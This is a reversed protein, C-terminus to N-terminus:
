SEIWLFKRRIREVFFKVTPDNDLLGETDLARLASELLSESRDGSFIQALLDDAEFVSIARTPAIVLGVGLAILGEGITIEGPNTSPGTNCALMLVTPANASIAERASELQKIDVELLGNESPFYLRQGDSHAVVIIVNDKKSLAKRMENYINKGPTTKANEKLVSQINKTPGEWSSSYSGSLDAGRNLQDHEDASKPLGLFYTTRSKKLKKAEALKIRAAVEHTSRGSIASRIVPVRSMSEIPIGDLGTGEVVVIDRSNVTHRTLSQLARKQSDMMNIPDKGLIRWLRNWFTDAIKIETGEGSSAQFIAKGNLSMSYLAVGNSAALGSGIQDTRIIDAVKEVLGFGRTDIVSLVISDTPEAALTQSILIAEYGVAENITREIYEALDRRVEFYRQAHDLRPPLLEQRHIDLTAQQWSEPALPLEKTAISANYFNRIAVQTKTGLLGETHEAINHTSQFKGIVESWDSIVFSDPPSYGLAYLQPRFESFLAALALDSNDRLADDFAIGPDMSLAKRLDRVDRSPLTSLISTLKWIEDRSATARTSLREVTKESYMGTESLGERRQFELIASATQEGRIGDIAVAFGLINLEEQTKLTQRRERLERQASAMREDVAKQKKKTPTDISATRWQQLYKRQRNENEFIKLIALVNRDLKGPNLVEENIAIERRIPSATAVSVVQEFLNEKQLSLQTKGIAVFAVAAASSNSNLLGHDSLAEQFAHRSLQYRQQDTATRYEKSALMPRAITPGCNADVFTSIMSLSAVLVSLLIKLIM